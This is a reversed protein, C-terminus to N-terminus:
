WACPPEQRHFDTAQQFAIGAALCAGDHWPRGVLQMSLPLGASNLGMPLALAPMGTYDFLRTNRPLVDHMNYREGNVTMSTDGLTPAPAGTTPMILLDAGSRDMDEIITAQAQARRRLARLYDAASLELGRDIRANTGADFLERRNLNAEQNSVLEAYFVSWAEEHAQEVDRPYVDLVHFGLARFTAAARELADLVEIDCMDTFWGRAVAVTLTVAAAPDAGLPPVVTCATPDAGDPGALVPLVCALDAASRAMPGVHDMTWSLSAVGTRPVLGHTPKLGTTGCFASPIRISGGTDTGLALPVMRAALSAGSGTSSGGTWRGRDWPNPVAGYRANDPAGCAFETTAAMFVPIAGAQRLRRVATADSAAIRDGTQWSGCTVPTDAVDIIDKVAFPIGELPRAHGTQWRRTSEAAAEEWGAIGALVAEPAPAMAGWRPAMAGLAEAPSTSGAAYLELLELVDLGAPHRGAERGAGPGADFPRSRGAAAQGAADDRVRAEAAPLPGSVSELAATLLRQAHAPELHGPTPPPPLPRGRSMALAGAQQATITDRSTDVADTM